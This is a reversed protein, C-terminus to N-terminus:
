PSSFILSVTAGTHTCNHMDTHACTHTHTHTHTCTCTHMHTHIHTSFILLWHCFWCAIPFTAVFWMYVYFIEVVSFLKLVIRIHLCQTFDQSTWFAEVLHFSFLSLLCETSECWFNMNWHRHSFKSTLEAFGHFCLNLHYDFVGARVTEGGGGEWVCVYVCKGKVFHLM